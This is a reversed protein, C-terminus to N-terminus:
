VYIMLISYEIMLLYNWLYKCNKIDIILYIGSTYGATM